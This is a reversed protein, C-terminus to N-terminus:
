QAGQASGPGLVPDDCARFRYVGIAKLPNFEAPRRQMALRRHMTAYFATSPTRPRTAPRSFPTDEPWPDAICKRGGTVALLETRSNRRTRAHCTLTPVGTASIAAPSSRFLQRAVRTMGSRGDQTRDQCRAAAALCTTPDHHAGAASAAPPARSHARLRKRIARGDLGVSTLWREFKPSAALRRDHSRRVRSRDRLGSSGPAPRM